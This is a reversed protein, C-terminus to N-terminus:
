VDLSMGVIEDATFDHSTFDGNVAKASLVYAMGAWRPNAFSGLGYMKRDISIGARYSNCSPDNYVGKYGTKARTKVNCNNQRQTAPRLNERQHDFKDRNHHDYGKGGLLQHLPRHKGQYYTKVYGKDSVHLKLKSVFEYDEDDVKTFKGEGYKGKLPVLKM